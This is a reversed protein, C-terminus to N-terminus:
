TTMSRSCSADLIHTDYTLDTHEEETYRRTQYMDRRDLLLWVCLAPFSELSHTLLSGCIVM